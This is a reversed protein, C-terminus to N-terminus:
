LTQTIRILPILIIPWLPIEIDAIFGYKSWNNKNKYALLVYAIDYAAFITFLLTCVPLIYYYVGFILPMLTIVSLICLAIITKNFGILVPVTKLGKERDPEIDKLDCFITNTFYKLLIFTFVLITFATIGQDNYIILLFAAALGWELSVFINKYAPIYKTFNKFFVAYILGGGIIIAFFSVMEIVSQDGFFILAILITVYTGIIYPYYKAKKELYAVRNPNTSKDEELDKYHDYSYVILPVFYAILLLDLNLPDGNIFSFTLIIGMLATGAMHGGFVYENFLFHLINEIFVFSKNQSYINEKVDLQVM